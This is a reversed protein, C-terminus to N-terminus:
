NRKINTLSFLWRMFLAMGTAAARSSLNHRDGRGAQAIWSPLKLALACDPDLWHDSSRGPLLCCTTFQQFSVSAEEEARRLIGMLELGPAVLDESAVGLPRNGGNTARGDTMIGNRVAIM